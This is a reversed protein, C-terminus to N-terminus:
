SYNFEKAQVRRQKCWVWVCLCVSLCVYVSMCILFGLYNLTKFTKRRTVSGTLPLVQHWICEGIWLLGALYKVNNRKSQYPFSKSLNVSVSTFHCTWPGKPLLYFSHFGLRRIVLRPNKWSYHQFSDLFIFKNQATM